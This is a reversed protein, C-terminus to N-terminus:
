FTPSEAFEAQHAESKDCIQMFMQQEGKSMMDYDMLWWNRSIDDSFRIRWVGPHKKQKVWYPQKRLESQINSRAIDPSRGRSRCWQEYESYLEGHAIYVYRRANPTGENATYHVGTNPDIVAYGSRAYKACQNQGSAIMIMSDAFFQNRFINIESAETEETTIAIMENITRQMDEQEYPIGLIDYLAILSGICCGYVFKARDDDVKEQFVPSNKLRDMYRLIAAVYEDRHKMLYRCIRYFEPSLNNLDTFVKAPSSNPMHNKIYDSRRMASMTLQVFRSKTAADTTADEGTVIPVTMPTVQRTNRSSDKVGKPATQQNFCSRILSVLADSADRNRYEDLHVPLCSYQMLTREVGVKTGNLTIYNYNEPFGLLMMALKQTSTKGSGKAGQTWVSPKAADATKLLEPHALYAFTSGVLMYGSCDGFSAHFLELAQKMISSCAKKEEAWDMTRYAYEAKRRDMGPFLIPPKQTFNKHTDNNFWFGAGNHWIIGDSDPFIFRDKSVACDGLLWIQHDKYWGMMDIEMITQNYNEVDIHKSFLDIQDQGAAWHYGGCATVFERFKTATSLEASTVQYAQSSERGNRDKIKLLRGIKGDTLIIKHKSRATFDCVPKPMRYLVINIALKVTRLKMLETHQDADIKAIKDDIAAKLSACEDIQKDSPAKIIYYGGVCDRLTQAIDIYNLWPARYEDPFWRTIQAADAAEKSGGAFLKPEHLLKNLRHQKLEEKAGGFVTFNKDLEPTKRIIQLFNKTAQQIGKAQDKGAKKIFMSLASDWDAKLPTGQMWEDPLDLVKCHFQYQELKIAMYTAWIEAEFRDKFAKHSKDERDFAVIIHRIDDRMIIALLSKQFTENKFIQIGPIAIAPIGCMALAAAKFEGECIVLTYKEQNEKCQDIFVEGYPQVLQYLARHYHMMNEAELFGKNTLNTKHPRLCTIRGYKDIYPIIIPNMGPIAIPDKQGEVKKLGTGCMFSALEIRNEYKNKRFLGTELLKNPPFLLLLEKSMEQNQKISSRFGCDDIWNEKIFGRKEKLEERHEDLLILRSWVAEFINWQSSDAPLKILSSSSAPKNQQITSLSLADAEHLEPLSQATTDEPVEQGMDQIIIRLAEAKTDCSLAMRFLEVCDNEVAYFSCLDNACSFTIPQSALDFTVSGQRMCQPCDFCPNEDADKSPNLAERITPNRISFTLPWSSPLKGIMGSLTDVYNM